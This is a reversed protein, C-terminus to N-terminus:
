RVHYGTQPMFRIKGTLGYSHERNATYWFSVFMEKTDYAFYDFEAVKGYYTVTM